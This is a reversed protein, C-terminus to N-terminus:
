FNDYYDDSTRRERIVQSQLAKQRLQFARQASNKNFTMAAAGEGTGRDYQVELYGAEIFNSFVRVEHCKQCTGNSPGGNAEEIVWHHICGPGQETTM